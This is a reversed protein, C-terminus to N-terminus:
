NGGREGGGQGNGAGRRQRRGGGDQGAKPVRKISCGTEKTSFPEVKEDALLKDLTDALYNNRSDKNRDKQDDDVLGRYILRGDKGFVYIHPTTKAEFVDAVKNGPDVLMRFPLKKQELAARIKAYPKTGEEVTSPGDDIEKVNSDIHLFTVGKAGYQKQLDALRNNWDAQVPCQLSWFNVVTIQGMLDHAKQPKGDIDLLTLKGDLRQGLALTKPASAEVAPQPEPPKKAPAPVPTPDQAALVAALCSFSVLKSFFQM